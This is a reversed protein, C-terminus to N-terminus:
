IVEQLTYNQALIALLDGPMANQSDDPLLELEFVSALYQTGDFVLIRLRVTGVFGEPRNVILQDGVVSVSVPSPQADLLLMPDNYVSSDFQALQVSTEFSGEWRHLSGDALLYHWAGDSDQIWRENGGAWNDYYVGAAQTYFGHEQQMLYLDSEMVEASFSMVDGDADFGALDFVIPSVSDVSQQQDALILEPPTNTVHVVFERTAQEIGDDIVVRVAVDGIFGADYSVTLDTGNISAEVPLPTADLILRPDEYVAPDLQAILESTAFSGEWRSLTGDNLLYYWDGDAAQLWRENGGAWNDYYQGHDNFNYTSQLEYEPSNVIAASYALLDGDDDTANLLVLLPSDGAHVIQDPIEDLTPAANTVEVTIVQMNQEGDANATVAIDFSGLFTDAPNIHLQGGVVSLEAQSMADHLLAPNDYVAPDLTAIVNSTEFSGQWQGLEGNPLLYFWDGNENHFWKENQGHFGTYYSADAYFGHTQDLEYLEDDVLQVEYTAEHGSGLIGPLDISFSDVAHSVSQNEFNHWQIEAPGGPEVYQAPGEGLFSLLEADIADNVLDVGNLFDPVDPRAFRAYEFGAVIDPNFAQWPSPDFDTDDLHNSNVYFPDYDNAKDWDTYSVMGLQLTEPFDSRPYRRHVVWDEGPLRYLVIVADGVRAIQLEASNVGISTLELDSDSNRTTKVELQFTPDQDPITVGYGLSLFVYNEGDNTGDEMMTGPTWDLAPDTINRPTRIMIGALSFTGDSPLDDPDPAGIDDRDTATVHTTFVFDGTVEKFAMPGRYSNYWVTTGPAMVMRGAQTQNIDYVDLQDANWGEVENVRQWEVVTAANDFEDNLVSLDDVPSGSLMKRQELSEFMQPRHKTRNRRRRKPFLAM